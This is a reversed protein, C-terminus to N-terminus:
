PNGRTVVVAKDGGPLDVVKFVRGTVECRFEREGVQIIGYRNKLDNLREAMRRIGDLIEQVEPDTARITGTESNTSTVM